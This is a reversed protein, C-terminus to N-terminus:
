TREVWFTTDSVRMGVDEVYHETNVMGLTAVKGAIDEPVDDMKYTTVVSDRRVRSEAVNDIAVVNCLLEEGRLMAQIFYANRKKGKREMDEDYAARWKVVHDRLTSSIFQHGTDLLSFLETRIDNSDRVEGWAERAKHSVGWAASNVRGQFTDFSLEAVEIPTYPRIYKKVAQIARELDDSTAMHFQERHDQYKNNKIARSYVAYKADGEKKVTYDEFGVRMMAYDHEPLYMWLESRVFRSHRKCEKNIGFSVHRNVKRIATCFEKLRPVVLIGDVEVATKAQDQYAQLAPNIMDMALEEKYRNTYDAVQKVTTHKYHTM